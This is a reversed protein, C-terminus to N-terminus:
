NRNEPISIIGTYLSVFTSNHLCFDIDFRLSPNPVPKHCGRAGGIIFDSSM